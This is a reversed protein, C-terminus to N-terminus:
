LQLVGKVLYATSNFMTATVTHHPYNAFHTYCFQCRTSKVERLPPKLNAAHFSGRAKIINEVGQSPRPSSLRIKGQRGPHQHCGGLADAPAAAIFLEHVIEGVNGRLVRWLQGWTVDRCPLAEHEAQQILGHANRKDIGVDDDTVAGAVRGDHPFIVGKAGRAWSKGYDNGIGGPNVVAESYLDSSCVDSSWDRKS